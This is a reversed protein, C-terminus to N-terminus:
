SKRDFNSVKRLVERQTTKDAETKELILRIAQRVVQIPVEQKGNLYDVLEGKPIRLHVALLGEDQNVMHLAYTLANRKTHPRMRVFNRAILRSLIGAAALFILSLSVVAVAYDLLFEQDM